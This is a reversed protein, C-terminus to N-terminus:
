LTHTNVFLYFLLVIFIIYIENYIGAYVNVKFYHQFNQTM